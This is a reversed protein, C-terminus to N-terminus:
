FRTSWAVTMGGGRTPGISLGDRDKDAKYGLVTLVAGTVVAASAAGFFIGAKLEASRGTDYLERFKRGNNSGENDGDDLESIQEGIDNARVVFYSGAIGLIVGAAITSMGAVRLSRGYGRGEDRTTVLATARAAALDADIERLRAEVFRRETSEPDLRLYARYFHAAEDLKHGARGAQAMNFLLGPQGSIAYAAKFESIAADFEGVDYHTVGTKYHARAREEDANAVVPAAVAPPEVAFARGGFAVLAVVLAARM